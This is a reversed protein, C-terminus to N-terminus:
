GAADDGPGMSGRPHELLTCYEEYLLMSSKPIVIGATPERDALVRRRWGAVEWAPGYGLEM